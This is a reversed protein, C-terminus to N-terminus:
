TQNTATRLHLFFVEQSGQCALRYQWAHCPLFCEVQVHPHSSGQLDAGMRRNQIPSRWSHLEPDARVNLGPYLREQSPDREFLDARKGRPLGPACMHGARWHCVGAGGAGGDRGTDRM